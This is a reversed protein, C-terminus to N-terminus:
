VGPLERAFRPEALHEVLRHGVHEAVKAMGVTAEERGLVGVGFALLALERDPAGVLDLVHQARVLRGGCELPPADGWFSVELAGGNEVPRDAAVEDARWVDLAGALPQELYALLAHAGAEVVLDEGLPIREEERRKGFRGGGRM